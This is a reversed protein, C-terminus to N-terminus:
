SSILTLPHAIFKKSQLLLCARKTSHCWQIEQPGDAIGERKAKAMRISYSAKEWGTLNQKQWKYAAAKKLGVLM